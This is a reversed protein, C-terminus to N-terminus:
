AKSKVTDALKEIKKNLELKGVFSSTSIYASIAREGLAAFIKASQYQFNKKDYNNEREIKLLIERKNYSIELKLEDSVLAIFEKCKKINQVCLDLSKTTQMNQWKQINFCDSLQTKFEIKQNEEPQSGFQFPFETIKFANKSFLRCFKVFLLLLGGVIKELFCNIKYRQENIKIHADNKNFNAYSAPNFLRDLTGGERSIDAFFAAIGNQNKIM